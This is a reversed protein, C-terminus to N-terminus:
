FYMCLVVVSGKLGLKDEGGDKGEAPGVVIVEDKADEGEGDIAWRGKLGIAWATIAEMGRAWGESGEILDDM